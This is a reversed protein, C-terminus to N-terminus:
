DQIFQVFENAFKVWFYYCNQLTTINKLNAIHRCVKEYTVVACSKVLFCM